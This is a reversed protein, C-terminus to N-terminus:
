EPFNENLPKTTYRNDSWIRIVETVEPLGPEIGPLVKDQDHKTKQEDNVPGAARPEKQTMRRKKHTFSSGTMVPCTRAIAIGNTCYM